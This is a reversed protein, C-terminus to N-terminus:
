PVVKARVSKNPEYLDRTGSKIGAKKRRSVERLPGPEAIGLQFRLEARSCVFLPFVHFGPTFCSRGREGNNYTLRIEHPNMRYVWQLDTQSGQLPRSRPPLLVLQSPPCYCDSLKGSRKLTVVLMFCWRVVFTISKGPACRGRLRKLWVSVTVFHFVLLLMLPVQVGGMFRCLLAPICGLPAAAWYIGAVILTVRTYVNVVRRRWKLSGETVPLKLLALSGLQSRKVRTHVRSAPPTSEASM